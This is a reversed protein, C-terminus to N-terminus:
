SSREWAAELEARRGRLQGVVEVLAANFAPDPLFRVGYLLGDGSGHRRHKVEAVGDVGRFRVPVREGADHTAAVEVLAGEMSIDHIAAM